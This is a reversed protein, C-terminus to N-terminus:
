TNLVVELDEHTQYWSMSGRTISTLGHKRTHKIGTWTEEHTQHWDMNGRTNSALGHKKTYENVIM